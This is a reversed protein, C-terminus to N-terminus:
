RARAYAPARLGGGTMAPLSATFPEARAVIRQYPPSVVFLTEWQLVLHRYRVSHM